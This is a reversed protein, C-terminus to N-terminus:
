AVSKLKRKGERLRLAAEQFSKKLDENGRFFSEDLATIQYLVSNIASKLEKIKRAKAISSQCQLIVTKASFPKEVAGAVGLELAELLHDKSLFASIFIFPLDPDIQNVERLVEIGNMEPMSLDSFILDPKKEKIAEVCEKPKTFAKANFGEDDLIEVLQEALDEEDDLVYILEKKESM